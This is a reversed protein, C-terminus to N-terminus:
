GDFGPPPRFAFGLSELRQALQITRLDGYAPGVIVFISKAWQHPRALRVLNTLVSETM